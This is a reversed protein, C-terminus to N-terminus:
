QESKVRIKIRDIKNETRSIVKVMFHELEIVEDCQPISQAAEMIVGALTSADSAPFEWGLSKEIERLTVDGDIAYSGDDFREIHNTERLDHEDEIEGVVEELVDELTVIGSVSGFEDVVLAFHKRSKKFAALQNKLKTSEPAYMLERLIPRIDLTDIDGDHLHMARFFDKTHLVGIFRNNDGEWIPLRTHTCDAIIGAVEKTPLDINASVMDSRHIMIDRVDTVELDIIGSLMFRDDSHVEGEEHYMDIAGRLASTGTVSQAPEHTIANIVINVIAQVALTMPAFVRTILVFVPAVALAVQEANRVAYTKPLVEAFVLVLLTMALTAYVVGSEGVLRIALATAISSAAINVVNNGLLIAGILREPDERLRSLTEARRNGEMKLAHIKERAVGILGTESGSFFASIAILIFVSLIPVVISGQDM